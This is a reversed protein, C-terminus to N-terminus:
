KSQHFWSSSEKPSTKSIKIQNPSFCQKKKLPFPPPPYIFSYTLYTYSKKIKKIEREREREIHIYMNGFAAAFKKKNERKGRGRGGRFNSSQFLFFSFSFSLNPTIILTKTPHIIKPPKQPNKQPPFPSSPKPKSFPTPLYTSCTITKKLDM